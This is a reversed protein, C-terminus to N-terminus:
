ILSELVIQSGPTVFTVLGNWTNLDLESFPRSM